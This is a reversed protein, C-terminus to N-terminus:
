DEWGYAVYDRDFTGDKYLNILAFGPPTQHYSGKWWNGSVAGNCYYTIDNYVVKDLLHLHGSICVKVNEHKHFLEVIRRADIHVWQGPIIWDGTEENKGDFFSAASVIPIHSFIFIPRSSDIEDLQRELWHFQEEDLRATYWSGDERTQTSDLVIFHWGNQEFDYYRNSLGLEKVAWNKAYRPDNSAEPLGWVDHNGICHVLPLSIEEDRIENWIEWQSLVDEEEQNLADNIADGGNFIVDPQDDMSHLVQLCSRTWAAADKGEHLHPDTFHAIRWAREATPESRDSEIIHFPVSALAAGSFGAKEIWQRRDMMTTM